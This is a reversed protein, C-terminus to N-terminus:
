PSAIRYFRLPRNAAGIDTFTAAGSGLMGASVVTWNAIPAALDSSALVRYPQTATGTFTLEFAGDGRMQEWLIVPQLLRIPTWTVGRFATATPATELTVVPAGPGTDVIRVLRNATSEMTTAYIVPSVGSWDVAIGRAGFNGVGSIALTYDLSWATGNKTYRKIGGGGQAGDDAVYASTMAPNIEFQYPSGGLPFLQTLRQTGTTPLGSGVAYVGPALGGGPQPSVYLQNNVIRACRFFANTLVNTAVGPEYYVLGGIKGPTGEGVAWFGSGDMSTVSFLNLGSFMDAARSTDSSGDPNLVGIVRLAEATSSGSILAEHNTANYGPICVLQSDASRTLYGDAIQDGEEMLNFPPASPRPYNTPMYKTQELVGGVTLEEVWVLQANNALGPPGDGVGEVLLNGPAFTGVQSGAWFGGLLTLSSSSSRGADWQGVTGRLIFNASQSSGGGGAIKLWPVSHNQAVCLEPVVIAALIILALNSHTRKIKM